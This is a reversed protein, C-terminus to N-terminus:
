SVSTHDTVILDDKGILRNPVNRAMLFEYFDRRAQPNDIVCKAFNTHDDQRGACLEDSCRIIVYRREDETTPIHEGDKVQATMLFRHFSAISVNDCHKKEVIMTGDTIKSKIKNAAETFGKKGVENLVVLFAEAMSWNFQGWVCREPETTILVKHEGIMKELFRVFEGKGGGQKSLFAIMVSKHEPYQFM